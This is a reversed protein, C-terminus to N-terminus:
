RTKEHAQIIEINRNIEKQEQSLEEKKEVITFDEESEAKSEKDWWNDVHEEEIGREEVLSQEESSVFINNEKNIIIKEAEHHLNKKDMYALYRTTQDIAPYRSTLSCGHPLRPNKSALLM